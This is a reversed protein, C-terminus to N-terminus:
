YMWYPKNYMPQPGQPQGYEQYSMTPYMGGSALNAQGQAQYQLPSYGMKQPQPEMNQPLGGSPNYGEIADTVGGPALPAGYPIDNSFGGNDAYPVGGWMAGDGEPATSGDPLGYPNEPPMYEGGGPPQMEPLGQQPPMQSGGGSPMPQAPRPMNKMPRPKAPMAMGRNTAVKKKFQRAAKRGQNAQLNQFKRQQSKNLIRNAGRPM